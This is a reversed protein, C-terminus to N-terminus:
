QATWGGDVMLGSGAISADTPSARLIAPAVPSLKLRIWWSRLAGSALPIGTQSLWRRCDLPPENGAPRMTELGAIIQQLSSRRVANRSWGIM